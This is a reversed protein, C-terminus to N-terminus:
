GLRSLLGACVGQDVKNEASVGDVEDHRPKDHAIGEHILDM